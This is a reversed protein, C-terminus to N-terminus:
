LMCKLQWRIFGTGGILVKRLNQAWLALFIAFNRPAIGKKNQV